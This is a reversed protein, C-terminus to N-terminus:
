HQSYVIIPHNILILLGWIAMSLLFFKIIVNFSVKSWMIALITM